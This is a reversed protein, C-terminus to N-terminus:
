GGCWERSFHSLFNRILADIDGYKVAKDGQFVFSEKVFALKLRSIADRVLLCDKVIPCQCLFRKCRYV